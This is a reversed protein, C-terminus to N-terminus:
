LRASHGWDIRKGRFSPLPPLSGKRRCRGLEIQPRGM